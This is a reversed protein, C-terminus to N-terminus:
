KTLLKILPAIRKADDYPETESRGNPQREALALIIKSITTNSITSLVAFLAIRKSAASLIKRLKM